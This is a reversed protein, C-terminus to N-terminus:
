HHAKNILAAAVLGIGALVLVLPWYLTIIEPSFWRAEKGIWFLGVIIFFLGCFIRSSRGGCMGFCHFRKSIAESSNNEGMM